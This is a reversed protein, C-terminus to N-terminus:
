WPEEAIMKITAEDAGRYEEETQPFREYGAVIEAGIRKRREIDVFTEIAQRVADSRTEAIGRAVLDDLAEALRDSIRVVVQTMAGLMVNQM